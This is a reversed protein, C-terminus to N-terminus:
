SRQVRGSGTQPPPQVRPGARARYAKLVSAVFKAVGARGREEALDLIHSLAGPLRVTAHWEEPRFVFVTEWERDSESAEEDEKESFGLDDRAGRSWQAFHKGKTSKEWEHFLALDQPNQFRVFDGLLQFPTRGHSEKLDGRTLELALPVGSEEGRVALLYRALDDIHTAKELLIGHARTPPRHGREVVAGAWRAFFRGELDELEEKSPNGEVFLAAHLHPHWGNEGHTADWSRFWHVLCHDEKDRRYPRGSFVRSWALSITEM